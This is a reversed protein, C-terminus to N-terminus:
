LSGSIPETASPAKTALLGIQAAGALLNPAIVHGLARLEDSPPILDPVQVTQCGAAIAARTGPDSDEFAACAQPAFGLKEAALLYIDPAPKAHTIQDGGIVHDFIEAWGSRALFNTATATLSSTALALPLGQAKLGRLLEEAGPKKPIGREKAEAVLQDVRGTFSELPARGALGQELVELSLDGRLGVMALFVPKLDPL